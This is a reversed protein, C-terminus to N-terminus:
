LVVAYSNFVAWAAVHYNVKYVGPKFAGLMPHVAEKVFKVKVEERVPMANAAIEELPLDYKDLWVSLMGTKENMAGPARLLRRVDSTVVPDIDAGCRREARCREQRRESGCRCKPRGRLPSIKRIYEVLYRREEATMDRWECCVVHFGRNGSFKVRCRSLGLEETLIEMLAYLEERAAKLSDADIDFVLDAGKWGKAEMDVEGPREYLAASKFLVPTNFTEAVHRVDRYYGLSIHRVFRGDKLRVVIERDWDEEDAEIFKFLLSYNM